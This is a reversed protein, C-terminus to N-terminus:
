VRITDNPSQPAPGGIALPRHRKTEVYKRNLIIGKKPMRSRNFGKEDILLLNNDTAMYLEDEIFGGRGVLIIEDLYGFAKRFMNAVPEIVIHYFYEDFLQKRKEYLCLVKYSGDTVVSGFCLEGALEYGCMNKFKRGSERSILYDMRMVFDKLTTHKDFCLMEYSNEDTIDDEQMSKRLLRLEKNFEGTLMCDPDNRLDFSEDLKPMMCRRLVYVNYRSMNMIEYQSTDAREAIYRITELDSGGFYLQTDCCAIITDAKRGYATRLQSISQLMISVSINRSRCTAIINDFDQIVTQAGFDDILLDVPIRLRGEETENDAYRVLANIAQSYFLNTIKDLSRDNDSIILFVATKEEGLKEFVIDNRNLIRSVAKTVFPMLKEAVTALISSDTVDSGKVKEYMKYVRAAFSDPSRKSLEEFMQAVLSPLEPQDDKKRKQYTELQFIDIISKFQKKYSCRELCVYATLAEIYFRAMNDWFPEKQLPNDPVLTQAFTLVDRDNKIHMLPDYGLSRSTDILDLTLVKYGKNELYMSYKKVLDGKTDSIIMSHEERAMALINPKVYSYTKGSGPSGIVAVNRNMCNDDFSFRHNKSLIMANNM